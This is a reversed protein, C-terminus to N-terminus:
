NSLKMQIQWNVTIGAFVLRTRDEAPSLRYQMTRCYARLNVPLRPINYSAQLGLGYKCVGSGNFGIDASGNLSVTKLTRGGTLGVQLTKNFAPLVVEGVSSEVTAYAVHTGVQSGSTAYVASLQIMTSGYRFSDLISNNKNGILTFRLSYLKKRIQYNVKGTWIEGLVPKQQIQLTDDFTRFTAFPKYSLMVTPYRRSQTAATFGWKSNRGTTTFNRQLLYNYEVGVKLFSRFFLGDGGISARQMGALLVPMTHNEFDKGVSEYAALINLTTKPIAAEMRFNYAARQSIGRDIAPLEPNQQKENSLALEGATRIHKGIEGQYTLSLIHTPQRFSAQSFYQPKFFSTDKFLHRAPSYNYYVLGAQQGFLPKFMSRLGMVKYEEIDGSRGIYETNGYALGINAVSIDYGLDIGKMMQGSQTYDSVYNTLMGIDLNTLGTLFSRSRGEPLLAGATRTMDKVSMSGIDKMEKISSYALLSDYHVMKDYQALLTTYYAIKKANAEWKEYQQVALAHRAALQAKMSDTYASVEGTHGTSDAQAKLQQRLLEQLRDEPLSRIDGQGLSSVSTQMQSLLGAQEARLSQLYQRYVMGYTASRSRAQEYREAFAGMMAELQERAKAADYSVRFYGAKVRRNRDQSTYFGTLQVPIGMVPLMLEGGLEYYQNDQMSNPEQGNGAAAEMFINGALTKGGEQRASIKRFQSSLSEMSELGTNTIDAAFGSLQQKERSHAASFSVSQQWEISGMFFSDSFFRYIEQHGSIESTRYLNRAALYKDLKRQSRKLVNGTKDRYSDKLVSVTRDDLVRKGTAAQQLLNLINEKFLTSAPILTDVLRISGDAAVTDSGSLVLITCYYKGVPLLGDTQRVAAAFLPDIHIDPCHSTNYHLRYTHGAAPLRIERSQASIVKQSDDENKLYYWDIKFRATRSEKLTYSIDQVLYDGTHLVPLDVLVNLSDAGYVSIGTGIYCMWVM